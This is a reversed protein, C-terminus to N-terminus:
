NSKKKKKLVLLLATLLSVVAVSSVVIAISLNNNDFALGLPNVNAVVPGSYFSSDNNAACWAVYRERAAVIAEDESTKFIEIEEESLDLLMEKANKYKTECSENHEANMWKAFISASSVEKVEVEKQIITENGALDTAKVYITKNGAETFGFNRGDVYNVGDTSTSITPVGYLDYAELESNLEYSFGKYFDTENTIGVKNFMPGENDNFKGDNTALSQGNISRLIVKTDNTFGGNGIIQFSVQRSSTLATAAKSSIAGGDGHLSVYGDQGGAKSQLLNDKDFRFTFNSAETADGMIWYGKGNTAWGDSDGNGVILDYSHNGNTYGGSNTWVRLREIPTDGVFTIFDFCGSNVSDSIVSTGDDSYLVVSFSLEIQDVYDLNLYPKSLGTGGGIEAKYQWANGGVSSQGPITAEIGNSSYSSQIEWGSVYNWSEIGESSSEAASVGTIKINSACITTAVLSSALCILSVGLLKKM